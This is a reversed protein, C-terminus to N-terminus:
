ILKDLRRQLAAIQAEVAPVVKRSGWADIFGWPDDPEIMKTLIAIAETLLPKLKDAYPSPWMYPSGFSALVHAAARLGEFREKKPDFHEIEDVVLAVDRNKWYRAFWDAAEDTGWPEFSWDGM